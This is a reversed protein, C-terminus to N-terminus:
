LAGTTMLGVGDSSLWPALRAASPAPEEDGDGALLLLAVGVGAGVIAVGLSIDALLAYTAVRDTAAEDCPPMRILCGEELDADESLVLGGFVAFGILGAAGAGFAILPAVPLGAEDEARQRAELERLRAEQEADRRERERQDELRRELNALRQDLTPRDVIREEPTEELYRRLYTVANELDGQREYVLAFNFYFDPRPSLEYARQFERLASAYDGESYYSSGANFHMRARENAADDGGDQARASGGVFVVVLSLSVVWSSRGM